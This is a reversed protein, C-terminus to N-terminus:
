LLNLFCILRVSTGFFMPAPSHVRSIPFTQKPKDICNYFKSTERDDNEECEVGSIGDRNVPKLAHDCVLDDKRVTLDYMFLNAASMPDEMLTVFFLIEASRHKKMTLKLAECYMSTCCIILLLLFAVHRMFVTYTTSVTRAKLSRETEHATVKGELYFNCV